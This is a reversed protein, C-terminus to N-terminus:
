IGTHLAKLVSRVREQINLVKNSKEAILWATFSFLAQSKNAKDRVKVNESMEM